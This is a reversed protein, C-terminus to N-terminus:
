LLILCGHIYDILFVCVLVLLALSLWLLTTEDKVILFYFPFPRHLGFPMHIEIAANLPFLLVSISWSLRLM